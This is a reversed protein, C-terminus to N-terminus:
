TQCGPCWCTTRGGIEDRRLDAVCRPCANGDRWRHKFLWSKPPDRWDVGITKLAHRSITRTTKWIADSEQKTLNAGRRGPFIGIQWLIEDAMWNGIGPFMSQDLLIAKVPSKGRRELFDAVRKKTFAKDTVEPPLDSWWDPAGKGEHFRIVGFMRYDNFVLERGKQVLVLHDHKERDAGTKRCELKGAMGLHVGLWRGGSFKFVMQKGHTLSERLTAGKLSRALASADCERFDRAKPNTRIATVRAGLGPDWQKRYYEVEALEPM